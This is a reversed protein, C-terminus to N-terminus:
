SARPQPTSIVRGADHHPVRSSGCALARASSRDWVWRIWGACAENGALSDSSPLLSALHAHRSLRRGIERQVHLAQSTCGLEFLEAPFSVEAMFVRSSYPRSWSVPRRIANLCTTFSAHKPMWCLKPKCVAVRAVSHRAGPQEQKRHNERYHQDFCRITVHWANQGHRHVDSM